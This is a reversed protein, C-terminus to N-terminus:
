HREHYGAYCCPGDVTMESRQRANGCWYACVWVPEEGYRDYDAEFTGETTTEVRQNAYVRTVEHTARFRSGCIKYHADFGCCQDLILVIIPISGFCGFVILMITTTSM